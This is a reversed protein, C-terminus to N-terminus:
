DSLTNGHADLDSEGEQEIPTFLIHQTGQSQVSLNAEKEGSLITKKTRIGVHAFLLEEWPCLLFCGKLRHSSPFRQDLIM